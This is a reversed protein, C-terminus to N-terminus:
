RLVWNKLAKKIAKKALYESLWYYLGESFQERSVKIKKIKEKM